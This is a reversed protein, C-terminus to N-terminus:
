DCYKKIMEDEIKDYEHRMDPYNQMINYFRSIYSIKEEETMKNEFREYDALFLKVDLSIGHYRYHPSNSYFLNFYSDLVWEPDRPAINAKLLLNELNNTEEKKYYPISTFIDLAHVIKFKGSNIDVYYYTHHTFLFLLTFLVLILAYIKIVYRM